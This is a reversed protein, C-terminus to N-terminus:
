ASLSERWREQRVLGLGDQHGVLLHLLLQGARGSDVPLLVREDPPVFRRLGRHPFVDSDIM